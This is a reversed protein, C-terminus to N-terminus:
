VPSVAIGSPSSLLGLPKPIESISLYTSTRSPARESLGPGAGRGERASYLGVLACWLGTYRMRPADM